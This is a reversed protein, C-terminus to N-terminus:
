KEKSKKYLHKLYTLFRYHEVFSEAPTGTVTAGETFISRSVGSQANIKVDNATTISPAIGAQGGIQNREGIVCSGAIGTQAAIVTDQGIQVNHGIQILNDLKVGKGIITSGLSARDICTNAGIEVNSQIVVNGMQPIKHLSNDKQPIFGFGDSGIIAGSHIVCNDGIQTDDLIKVGPHIVTNQGITVREGIYVQPYIVANSKVRSNEGIYAGFGIQVNTDVQATPAQYFSQNSFTPKRKPFFVEIIIAFALYPEDVVLWTFPLDKNVMSSKAVIASAQCESLLSIYQSKGLFTIEGKRAYEIRNPASIMLNEDGIIQAQILAALEKSTKM